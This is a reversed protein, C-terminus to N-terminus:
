KTTNWMARGSYILLYSGFILGAGLLALRRHPSRRSWWVGAAILAIFVLPAVIPGVTVWTVGFTGLALNDVVPRVTYWAGTLPRFAKIATLNQSRYHELHQIVGATLPLSVALFAITGLLPTLAALTHWPRKPRTLGVDDRPLLYLCCLPGALVGSAFWCPALVCCLGAVGAM